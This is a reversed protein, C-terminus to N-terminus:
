LNYDNVCKEYGMRKGEDYAREMPRQDEESQIERLEEITTVGYREMEEKDAKEMCKEVWYDYAYKEFLWIILDKIKNKM